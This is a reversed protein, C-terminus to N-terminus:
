CHPRLMPYTPAFIGMPPSAAKRNAFAAYLSAPDPNASVGFPESDDIMCRRHIASVLDFAEQGFQGPGYSLAASQLPVLRAPYLLEAQPVNADAFPSVHSPSPRM